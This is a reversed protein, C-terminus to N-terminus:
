VSYTHQKDPFLGNKVEHIYREIALEINKEGIMYNKVFKPIHGNNLGLMDYVVLIQGDTDPGAGIGIVPVSVATTIKKALSAPICELLICDAGAGALIKADNVMKEALSENRGQLSYGGLKNVSQPTLGLHACTPIGQRSLANILPVLWDDGEIKIINAGARMLKAANEQGQELTSYTMFPLDAMILSSTNGSAVSQTHYVMHDISVPLTSDHGQIVMGLSDGVLLIDVGLRSSLSSFTADYSTLATFKVQEKKYKALTKITIKKM